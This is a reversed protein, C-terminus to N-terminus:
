LPRAPSPGLSFQTWFAPDSESEARPRAVHRGIHRGPAQSVNPRPKSWPTFDYRGLARQQQLHSRIAILDDDSLASM